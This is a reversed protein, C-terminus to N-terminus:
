AALRRLWAHVDAVSALREGAFSEGEGVKIGFGGLRAAARFGDEDTTDDGVFVPVRGAFDTLAAIEAVASGKSAFAPKVEVVMKGDIVALDPHGAAAPHVVARVADGREPAKRYHVAFALGKEELFVRGDLIGADLVAQRAADLSAPPKPREIAAGPTTRRELGHLGFTVFRGPELFRDIEHIPRGSVIALAGSFRGKVRELLDALGPAVEIADPTPAIEVLTGDFDLLLAAHHPTEFM